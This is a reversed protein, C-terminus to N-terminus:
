LRYRCSGRQCERHDTKYVVIDFRDALPEVVPYPAPKALPSIGPFSLEGPLFKRFFCYLFLPCSRAAPSCFPFARLLRPQSQTALSCCPPPMSCCLFPIAVFQVVSCRILLSICHDAYSFRQMAFSYCYIAYSQFHMACIACGPQSVSYGPKAFFHFPPAFFHTDFILFQQSPFPKSVSFILLAFFLFSRCLM